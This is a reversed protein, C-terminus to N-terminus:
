RTAAVDSAANWRLPPDANQRVSRSSRREACPPIRRVAAAYRSADRLFVIGPSM